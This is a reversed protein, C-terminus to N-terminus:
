PRRKRWKRSRTTGTRGPPISTCTARSIKKNLSHLPVFNQAGALYEEEGFDERMEPPVYPLGLAKFCDAETKGALMKEREGKVSFIGYENVKM